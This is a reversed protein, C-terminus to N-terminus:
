RSSAPRESSTVFLPGAMSRDANVLDKIWELSARRM